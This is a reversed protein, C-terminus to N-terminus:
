KLDNTKIIRSNVSYNKIIKKLNPDLKNFADSIIQKDETLNKNYGLFKPANEQIILRIFRFETNAPDNKIEKELMKAGKKFTKLKNPPGKEFDAKRMLLAGMYSNILSSEEEDEVKAIEADVSEESNGSLADYFTKKDIGKLSPFTFFMLFVVPLFIVIKM